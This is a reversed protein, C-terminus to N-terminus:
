QLDFTFLIQNKGRSVMSACYIGYDHWEHIQRDTQKDCILTRSFGSFWHLCWICTLDTLIPSKGCIVETRNEEKWCPDLRSQVWASLGKIFLGM